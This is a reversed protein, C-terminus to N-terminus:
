ENELVVIKLNCTMERLQGPMLATMTYAVYYWLTEEKLDISAWM